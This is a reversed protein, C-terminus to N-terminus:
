VDVALTRCVLEELQKMDESKRVLLVSSFQQLNKADIGSKDDFLVILSKDYFSPASHILKVPETGAMDDLPLDIITIEHDSELSWQLAERVTKVRYTNFGSSHLKKKLVNCTGEEQSLILASKRIGESPTDVEWSCSWHNGNGHYQLGSFGMSRAMAIGRGNPDLIRAESINMFPKSDFGSGMDRCNLHIEGETREFTLEAYRGSLKSDCLREQILTELTGDLMANKKGLYSIELNGHEIANVLLENLGFAVDTPEPFSKSVFAALRNAEFITKFRYKSQQVLPPITQQDFLQRKLRAKREGDGIAAKVIALLLKRSFPKVLYYFVGALIGQEIQEPQGAATQMIIPSQSHLKDSLISKTVEIGDPTPMSRDMLIVDFPDSERILRLAESGSSALVTAFGEATLYESLIDLNVEDDDVILAKM